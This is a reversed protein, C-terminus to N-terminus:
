TLDTVITNVQISTGDTATLDEELTEYFMVTM